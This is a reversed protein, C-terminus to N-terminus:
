PKCQCPSSIATRMDAYGYEDWMQHLQGCCDVYSHLIAEVRRKKFDFDITDGYKLNPAQVFLGPDHQYSQWGKSKDILLNNGRMTQCLLYGDTESVVMLKAPGCAAFLLLLPLYKM